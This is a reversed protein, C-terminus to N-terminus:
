MFYDELDLDEITGHLEGMGADFGNDYGVDYGAERGVAVGKQYCEDPDKDDLYSLSERSDSTLVAIEIEYEEKLFSDLEEYSTFNYLKGNATVELKCSKGM